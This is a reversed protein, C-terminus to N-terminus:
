PSIRSTARLGTRPSRSVPTTRGPWLKPSGTINRSRGATTSASAAVSANTSCRGLSATNSSISRLGRNARRM